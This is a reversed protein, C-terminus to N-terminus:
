EDDAEDAEDAATQGRNDLSWPGTGNTLLFLM